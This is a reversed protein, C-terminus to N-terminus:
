LDGDRAMQVPVVWMAVAPQMLPAYTACLHRMLRSIYLDSPPSSFPLAHISGFFRNKYSKFVPLRVFLKTYSKGRSSCSWRYMSFTGCTRRCVYHMVIHM